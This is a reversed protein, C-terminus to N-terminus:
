LVPKENQRHVRKVEPLEALHGIFERHNRHNHCYTLRLEALGDPAQRLDQPESRVEHVDLMEEIKLLTKGGAPDFLVFITRSGCMGILRREIRSVLMLIVLVLLSLVVASGVHGTGVVMGIAAIAWITAATVTGTVGGPGRLIVGGGLFGIGTVVQAAVRSADGHPGAVVLSVLTFVTSGLCVLSLTLIGAPKERRERELGVISGCLVAILVLTVNALAPPMLERWDALLWNM